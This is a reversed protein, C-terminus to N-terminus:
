AGGGGGSAGIALPAADGVPDPRVDGFDYGHRTQMIDKFADAVDAGYNKELVSVARYYIASEIDLLTEYNDILRATSEAFNNVDFQISEDETLLLRLSSENVKASKLADMEFDALVADVQAELPHKLVAVETDTIKIDEEEDEEEETETDGKDDAAEDDATEPTDGGEDDGTDTLDLGEGEEEELLMQLNLKAEKRDYRM